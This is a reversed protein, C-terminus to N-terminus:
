KNSNFYTYPAKRQGYWNLHEPEELIVVDTSADPLCAMLNRTEADPGEGHGYMAAAVEPNLKQATATGSEGRLFAQSKGPRHDFLLCGLSPHYRAPYWSINFNRSECGAEPLGTSWDLDCTQHNLPLAVHSRV